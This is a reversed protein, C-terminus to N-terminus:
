LVNYKFAEERRRRCVYLMQRNYKNDVLSPLLARIYSEPFADKLRCYIKRAFDDNELLENMERKEMSWGIQKEIKFYKNLLHYIEFNKYEEEHDDPWVRNEFMGNYPPTPTSVILLGNSDMNEYCTRILERGDIKSLHEIVEEIIVIDPRDQMIIKEYERSTIDLTICNVEDKNADFKKWGIERIYPLKFNNVCLDRITSDGAGLEHVTPLNYHEKYFDNIISATMLQRNFNSFSWHKTFDCEMFNQFESNSNKMNISNEM